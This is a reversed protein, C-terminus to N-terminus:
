GVPIPEHDYYSQVQEVYRQIGAPDNPLMVANADFYGKWRGSNYAAAVEGVTSAREITVIRHNIFCQAQMGAFGLDDYQKGTVYGTANLLLTQWPGFSSHADCGVRATLANLIPNTGAVALDHWHQEHRPTCNTGFSSEAGAIAYLLKAGDISKPLWSHTGWRRCEAWIQEKTFSM